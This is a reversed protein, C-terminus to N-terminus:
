EQKLAMPYSHVAIWLSRTAPKPRDRHNVPIAPRSFLRFVLLVNKQGVHILHAEFKCLTLWSRTRRQGPIGPTLELKRFFQLEGKLSWRASSSTTTLGSCCGSPSRRSRPHGWRARCATRAWSSDWSPSGRSPASNRRRSRRRVLSVTATTTTKTWHQLTKSGSVSNRTFM